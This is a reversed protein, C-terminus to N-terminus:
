VAVVNALRHPVYVVQKVTKGELYPQLKPLGLVVKEVEAKEVSKPLEIKERVKGNIQVVLTFTENTLLTEDYRPWAELSALTKHGMAAWLEEAIHPAYPSLLLVLSSLLEYVVFHGWPTLLIKEDVSMLSYIENVLEMAASIATNFKQTATDDTMKKIAWHTKRRLQLLAAPIETPPPSLRPEIMVDRFHYFARWVRTVFRSCGEVGKENWELDKEPPAAFLSFLRGTDAGFRDVTVQLPVVNGVSKSMKAGDKIVMGQSLLKAFPENSSLYGWDRLVKHFFRSYLLHMCAHEIGGIYFDVPTWADASAKSFPAENNHPDTFRLYYWSSEVFTDMTDTERRAPGHCTPCTTKSFTPHHDLPNGQKGSFEIDTPLTVPLDKEPVLVVGCADCYIVPIPTGWYRQRSVGWDRLRFQVTKKGLGQKEIEAAIRMKATENDLGTFEGSDVLVGADVFAAALSEEATKGAPAIVTKIPLHYVGAFEFDRQDHAPVAMVAGTGYEMLVFDGVWIPIIKKTLPHVAMSGTFFGSKGEPEKDKPRRQLDEKLASLKELAGPERCLLEALPHAAAITLFTVGYITDPRTTFIEVSDTRNQIPFHLRVGESRGIWHKQMELVRPPWHGQLEDHGSLLQDAYATIKFYWQSLEKAEVLSGCRWCLGEQVQENALVTECSACWNVSGSKKYALGSEYLKRFFLQEWRYYDPLCTTIERTWDYSIGMSKFDNKMQAINQITWDKPNIKNKIAANEAPLGFADWGVPHMVNYGRMRMFRSIVDGICYNRLHGMHIAGSPYPFMCLCYFKPKTASKPDDAVFAKTAEWIQQWKGEIPKPDYKETIM